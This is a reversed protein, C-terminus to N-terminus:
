MWVVATLDSQKDLKSIKVTILSLVIQGYSWWSWVTSLIHTHCSQWAEAFSFFARHFHRPGLTYSNLLPSHNQWDILAQVHMTLFLFSCFSCQAWISFVTVGHTSEWFYWIGESFTHICRGWTPSTNGWLTLLSCTWLGATFEHQIRLCCKWVEQISRDSKNLPWSLRQISKERHDPLSDPKDRVKGHLGFMGISGHSLKLCVCNWFVYIGVWSYIM